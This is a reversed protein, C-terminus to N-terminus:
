AALVRDFYRQQARLKDESVVVDSMIYGKRSLAGRRWDNAQFGIIFNFAMQLIIVSQTDLYGSDEAIGLSAIVIVIFVAEWWLRQFLAWFVGFVFAMFNFGEYVFVAREVAHAKAPNIHVTYIKTKPLFLM